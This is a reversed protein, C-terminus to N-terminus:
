SQAFLFYIMYYLSFYTRCGKYIILYSDHHVVLLSTLLIPKYNILHTASTDVSSATEIAIDTFGSGLERAKFFVFFFMAVLWTSACIKEARFFQHGLVKQDVFNAARFLQDYFNVM